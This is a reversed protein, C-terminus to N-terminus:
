ITCLMLLIQIVELHGENAAKMLATKNLKDKANVDAGNDLLIRAIELNNRESAQMLATSSFINKGDVDNLSNVDAGKALLLKM